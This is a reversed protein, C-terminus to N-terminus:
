FLLESDKDQGTRISLEAMPDLIERAKIYEVWADRYKKDQYYSYARLLAPEYLLDDSPNVRDVQYRLIAGIYRAGEEVRGLKVLWYVLSNMCNILEPTGRTFIEKYSEVIKKLIEIAEVYQELEILTIALGKQCRLTAVSM